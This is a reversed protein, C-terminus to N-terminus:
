LLDVAKDKAKDSVEIYTTTTNISEHGMLKQIVEIAVGKEALLTGFTHRATHFVVCKSIKAQKSWTKIHRMLSTKSPLEFVIGNQKITKPLCMLAKKCLKMRLPKDTKQMIINMEVGDDGFRLDEWSLKQIDSFRLGTYCSFFFAKEVISEPDGKEKLQKLEKETLFDRPVPARTILEYKKLKNFPNCAIIEDKVANDMTSRFFSLYFCSSTASLKKNNRKKVTKLYFIFKRCFEPTVDDLTVIDAKDGLFKRLHYAVHQLAFAYSNGKRHLVSEEIFDNLYSMLYVRPINKDEESIKKLLNREVEIRREMARNIVNLNELRNKKNVKGRKDTDPELYLRMCHQHRKKKHTYNLYLSLGGNVTKKGYVRVLAHPPNPINFCSTVM